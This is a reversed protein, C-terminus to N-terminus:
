WWGLLKWYPLGVGLWIALHFLAVSFGIAFWRRTSVYGFGSYIV